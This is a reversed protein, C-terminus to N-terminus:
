YNSCFQRVDRAREEEHGHGCLCVHQLRQTLLHNPSHTLSHTPSHTGQARAANLDTVYDTTKLYM